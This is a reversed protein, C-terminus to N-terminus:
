VVGLAAGVAIAADFANGGKMMVEIGAMSAAPHNSAVMGRTGGVVPRLVADPTGEPEVQAGAGAPLLILVLVLGHFLTRCRLSPSAAM